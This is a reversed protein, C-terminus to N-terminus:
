GKYYKEAGSASKKLAKETQSWTKFSKNPKRGKGNGSTRVCEALRSRSGGRGQDEEKRMM